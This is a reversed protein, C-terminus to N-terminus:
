NQYLVNYLKRLNLALASYSSYNGYFDSNSQYSESSILPLIEKTYTKLSIDDKGLMELIELVLPTIDEAPNNNFYAESVGGWCSAGSSGGVSWYVGVFFDTNPYTEELEELTEIDKISVSSRYNGIDENKYICDINNIKKIFEFFEM